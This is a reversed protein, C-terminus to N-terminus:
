KADSLPCMHSLDEDNQYKIKSLLFFIRVSQSVLYYILLLLYKM